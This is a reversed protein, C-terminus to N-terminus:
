DVTGEVERQACRRRNCLDTYVRTSFVQTKADSARKHPPPFADSWQSVHHMFPSVSPSVTVEALGASVNARVSSAHRTVRAWITTYTADM